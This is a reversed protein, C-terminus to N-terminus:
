LSDYCREIDMRQLAGRYPHVCSHGFCTPPISHKNYIEICKHACTPKMVMDLKTHPKDPAATLIYVVCISYHIFSYLYPSDGSHFGVPHFWPVRFLFFELAVKDVLRM